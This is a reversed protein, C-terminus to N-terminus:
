FSWIKCLTKCKWYVFMFRGISYWIILILIIYSTNETYYLWSMISLFTKCIKSHFFSKDNALKEFIICEMSRSSIFHYLFFPPHSSRLLSLVFRRWNVSWKIWLCMDFLMKEDTQWEWHMNAIHCKSIVCDCLRENKGRSVSKVM